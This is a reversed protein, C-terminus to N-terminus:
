FVFNFNSVQEDLGNRKRMELIFSDENAECSKIEGNEVCDASNLEDCTFCKLTESTKVLLEQEIRTLFQLAQKMQSEQNVKNQM